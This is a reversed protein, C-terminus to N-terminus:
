SGENPFTLTPAQFYFFFFLSLPVDGEQKGVLSGNSYDLKGTMPINSGSRPSDLM